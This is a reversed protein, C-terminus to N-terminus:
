CKGQPQNGQERAQCDKDRCFRRAGLRLASKDAERADSDEPDHELTIQFDSVLEHGDVDTDTGNFAGEPYEWLQWTLTGLDPLEISAEWITRTGM